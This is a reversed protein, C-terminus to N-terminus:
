QQVHKASRHGRRELCVRFRNGVEGGKDLSELAGHEAVGGHQREGRSRRRLLPLVRLGGFWQRTSSGCGPRFIPRRMRFSWAIVSVRVAGLTWGRKSKVRRVGIRLTA